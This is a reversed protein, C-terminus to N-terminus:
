VPAERAAEFLVQRAAESGGMRYAARAANEVKKDALCHLCRVRAETGAPRCQKVLAVIDAIDAAAMYFPVWVTFRWQGTEEVRLDDVM